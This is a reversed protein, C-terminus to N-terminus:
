CLRLCTVYLIILQDVDPNIPGAEDFWPLTYMVANAYEVLMHVVDQGAKKRSTLTVVVSVCEKGRILTQRVLKLRQRLATGPLGKVIHKINELKQLGKDGWRLEYIQLILLLHMGRNVWLKAIQWPSMLHTSTRQPPHIPLPVDSHNAIPLFPLLYM